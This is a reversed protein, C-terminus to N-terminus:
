IRRFEAYLREPRRLEAEVPPPWDFGEVAPLRYKELLRPLRRLVDLYHKYVVGGGHGLQASEAVPDRKYLWTSTLRRLSQHRKESPDRHENPTCERVLEHWHSKSYPWGALRM